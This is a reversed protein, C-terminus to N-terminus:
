EAARAAAAGGEAADESHTARRRAAFAREVINRGLGAYQRRIAARRARPPDGLAGQRHRRRQEWAPPPIRGKSRIIEVEDGNQLETTLPM